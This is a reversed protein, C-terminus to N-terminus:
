LPQRHYKIGARLSLSRYLQEYLVLRALEHPLTLPGLSVRERAAELASEGLGLDSGVLFAIPHPWRDLLRGLWRALEESSRARGRRDLAVIWCPEPLAAVLAGAESEMRAAGEGERVSRVLLERVPLQAGIRERYRGCLREWEDRRHRGAWAVILERGL